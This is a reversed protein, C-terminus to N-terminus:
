YLHQLRLADIYLTQSGKLTNTSKELYHFLHLNSNRLIDASKYLAMLVLSLLTISILVEILTFAFKKNKM